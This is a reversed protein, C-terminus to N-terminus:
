ALAPINRIFNIWPEIIKRVPTYWAMLFAVPLAVNTSTISLLSVDHCSFRSSAYLDPDLVHFLLVVSIVAGRYGEVPDVQVNHLVLEDAHHTGGPAALGRQEVDQRAEMLPDNAYARAIAVRQKMGGSLEKPYSNEFDELGVMKIYKRAIEQCQAKPMRKMQPGFM